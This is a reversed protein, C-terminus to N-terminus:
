RVNGEYAVLVGGAEAYYSCLGRLPAIEINAAPFHTLLLDRLEQAMSLNMCHHIYVTTGDWGQALMQHAIAQVAKHDGRAKNLVAFEGAVSAKGVVRIGLIGVIAGVAPSVRGNAVFNHVSALSFVLNTKDRYSSVVAVTEEFSFGRRICAAIKEVTQRCGPGANLTDFVHIRCNPHHAMHERAALCASNYTGSMASSITVCYIEDADGFAEQWAHLSPCASSTKGKYSRLFSTMEEIDCTADDVFVRDGAHVTLPVSAFSIGDLALLDASSDAVIRVSM